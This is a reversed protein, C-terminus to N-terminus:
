SMSCLVCPTWWRQLSSRARQSGIKRLAFLSLFCADESATTTIVRVTIRFHQTAVQHVPRQLAMRYGMRGTWALM